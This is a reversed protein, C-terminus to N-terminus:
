RGPPPTEDVDRDLARELDEHVETLTELRTDDGADEARRLREEADEIGDSRPHDEM